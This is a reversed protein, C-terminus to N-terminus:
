AVAQLSSMRYMLTHVLESIDLRERADVPLLPINFGNNSLELSYDELAPISSRDMQTVGIVIQERMVFNEFTKLFFALDQFPNFSTNDILLILGMDDSSLIDWMFDFRKQGPVGYLHLRRGDDAQMVGYDMAVTTSTTSKNQTFSCNAETKVPEIVSVAEIATTKGAGVSGAFLIKSTDM